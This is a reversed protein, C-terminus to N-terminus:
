SARCHLEIINRENLPEPQCFANREAKLCVREVDEVPRLQSCWDGCQAIRAKAADGARACSCVGSLKLEPQFESESAIAKMRQSATRLFAWEMALPM